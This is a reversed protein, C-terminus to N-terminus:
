AVKSVGAVGRIGPLMTISFLGVGAMVFLANTMVMFIRLGSVVNGGLSAISVAGLANATEKLSTNVQALQQQGVGKFSNLEKSVDKLSTNVTTLQKGTVDLFQAAQNTVGQVDGISERLTHSTWGLNESLVKVEKESNAVSTQLQGIVVDTQALSSSATTLQDLPLTVALSWVTGNAAAADAEAQIVKADLTPVNPAFKALGELEKATVKLSDLKITFNQREKVLRQGEAQLVAVPVGIAASLWPANDILDQGSLVIPENSAKTLNVKQEEIQNQLKPVELTKHLVGIQDGVGTLDKRTTGLSIAAGEITNATTHIVTPVQKGVNDMTKVSDKVVIVTENLGKATNDLLAVVSTLGQGLSGSAADVGDSAVKVTAVVGKVTDDIKSLEGNVQGFVMISVGIGGSGVLVMLAAVIRLVLTGM